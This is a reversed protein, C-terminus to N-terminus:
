GCIPYFIYLIFNQLILQNFSDVRMDNKGPQVSHWRKTERDFAKLELTSFHVQTYWPILDLYALRIPFDARSVLLSKIGGESTGSGTVYKTVSILPLAEKPVKALAAPAFVVSESALQGSPLVAIIRSDPLKGTKNVPISSKLQVPSSLIFVNSSSAAKCSGLIKTGLLGELSWPATFYFRQLIM